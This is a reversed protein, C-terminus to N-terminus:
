GKTIAIEEFVVNNNLCTYFCDIIEHRYDYLTTKSVNCYNALEWHPLKVNEIYIANLVLFYNSKGRLYDLRYYNYVSKFTDYYCKDNSYVLEKILNEKRTLERDKTFKGM